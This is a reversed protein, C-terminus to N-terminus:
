TCRSGGRVSRCIGGRSWRGRRNGRGSRSGPGGVHDRHIRPVDERDFRCIGLGVDEEGRVVRTRLVFLVFFGPVQQLSSISTYPRVGRGGRSGSRLLPLADFCSHLISRSLTPSLRGRGDTSRLEVRRSRRQPVTAAGSFTSSRRKLAADGFHFVLTEARATTKSAFVAISIILLEV